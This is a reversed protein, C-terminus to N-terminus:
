VEATAALDATLAARLVSSTTERPRPLEVVRLGGGAQGGGAQGAAAQGAAAPSVPGGHRFLVTFGTRDRTGALDGDSVATVTWVERVAEVVARREDAPVYPPRGAVQEALADDLVGVVLRDCGAAASRLLDLHGVHFLDFVGETYGVVPEVDPLQPDPLQPDPLQADSAPVPQDPM